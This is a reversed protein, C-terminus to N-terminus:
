PLVFQIVNSPPGLGTFITKWTNSIYDYYEDPGSVCSASYVIMYVTDGSNVKESGMYPWSSAGGNNSGDSVSFYSNSDQYSINSNKGVFSYLGVGYVSFHDVGASDLEHSSTSSFGFTFETDYGTYYKTITPIGLTTKWNRIRALTLTNASTNSINNLLLTGSGVFEIQSVVYESFDPKSFSISYYGAPVGTLTFNGASDSVAGIGTGLIQVNVGDYSASASCDMEELQLTGIIQGTSVPPVTSASCGAILAFATFFISGRFISRHKM